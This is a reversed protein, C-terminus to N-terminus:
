RIGGRGLESIVAKMGRCIIGDRATSSIQESGVARRMGVIDNRAQTDDRAYMSIPNKKKEKKKPRLVGWTLCREGPKGALSSAEKKASSRDRYARPLMPGVKEDEGV